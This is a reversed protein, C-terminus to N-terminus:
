RGGLFDNMFSDEISDTPALGKGSESLIDIAAKRFKGPLGQVFADMLGGDSKVKPDLTDLVGEMAQRAQEDPLAALGAEINPTNLREALLRKLGRVNYNASEWVGVKSILGASTLASMTAIKAYAVDLRDNVDPVLTKVSDVIRDSFTTAAISLVQDFTQKQTMVELAAVVKPQASFKGLLRNIKGGFFGPDAVFNTDALEKFAPLTGNLLTTLFSLQGDFETAQQANLPRRKVLSIDLPDNGANQVAQRSLSTRMLTQHYDPGLKSIDNEKVGNARAAARMNMITEAASRAVDFGERVTEVSGDKSLSISNDRIFQLNNKELDIKSKEAHKILDYQLDINKKFREDALPDILQIDNGRSVQVFGNVRALEDDPLGVASTPDGTLAQLAQTAGLEDGQQAIGYIKLLADARKAVAESQASQADAVEKATRFPATSERRQAEGVQLELLRSRNPADAQQQLGSQLNLLKTAHGIADTQQPALSSPNVLKVGGGVDLLGNPM